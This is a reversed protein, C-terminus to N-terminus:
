PGPPTASRRARSPLPPRVELGTVPEFRPPVIIRNAADLADAIIADAEAIEDDVEGCALYWHARDEGHPRGVAEWLAYARWRVRDDRYSAGHIDNTM